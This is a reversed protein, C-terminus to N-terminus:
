KTVKQASKVRRTKGSRNKTQPCALEAMQKTLYEEYASKAADSLMADPYSEVESFNFGKGNLVVFEVTDRKADPQCQIADELDLYLDLTGDEEEIGCLEGVPGGYLKEQWTRADDSWM